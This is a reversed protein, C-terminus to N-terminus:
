VRKRSRKRVPGEWCTEDAMQRPKHARTTGEPLMCSADVEDKRTRKRAKAPAAKASEFNAETSNEPESPLVPRDASLGRTRTIMNAAENALEFGSKSPPLTSDLDLYPHSNADIPQTPINMNNTLTSNTTDFFILSPNTPLASNCAQQNPSSRALFGSMPSFNDYPLQVNPMMPTAFSPSGYIMWNADPHYLTDPPNSYYGLSPTSYGFPASTAAHISNTWLPTPQFGDDQLLVPVDSALPARM